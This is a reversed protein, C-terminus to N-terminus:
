AHRAVSNLVRHRVGAGPPRVPHGQQGDAQTNSYAKSSPVRQMRWALPGRPPRNTIVRTGADDVGVAGAVGPAKWAGLTGLPSAHRPPASPATRPSDFSNVPGTPRSPNIVGTCCGASSRRIRNRSARRHRRRHSWRGPPLDAVPQMHMAVEALSEFVAAALIEGGTGRPGDGPTAQRAEWRGPPLERPTRVLRERAEPSSGAM